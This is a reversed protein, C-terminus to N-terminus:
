TAYRSAVHCLTTDRLTVVQSGVALSNLCQSMKGGGPFRDVVGGKYVKIVLDVYGLDDDSTTPTYKREIEPLNAERLAM